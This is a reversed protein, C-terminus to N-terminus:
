CVTSPSCRPLSRNAILKTFVVYLQTDDAYQQQNVHHANIVGAIPSTYVTFLIPGLVLVQLVECSFIFLTSLASGVCVTQSQRSLHSSIWSPANDSIGLKDHLHSLIISQIVTEFAASINLAVILTAKGRDVAQYAADMMRLLAM